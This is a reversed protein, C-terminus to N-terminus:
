EEVGSCEAADLTVLRPTAEDAVRVKNFRNGAIGDVAVDSRAPSLTAAEHDTHNSSIESRGPAHVYLM